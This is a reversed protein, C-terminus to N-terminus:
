IVVCYGLRHAGDELSLENVVRGDKRVVTSAPLAEVIECWSLNLFVINDLRLDFRGSFVM